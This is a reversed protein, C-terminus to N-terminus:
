FAEVAEAPTEAVTLKDVRITYGHPLSYGYLLQCIYERFVQVVTTNEPYVSAKTLVLTEEPTSADVDFMGLYPPRNDGRDYEADFRVSSPFLKVFRRSGRKDQVHDIQYRVIRGAPNRISFRFCEAEFASPDITEMWEPRVAIRHQYQPTKESLVDFDRDRGAQREAFETATILQDTTPKSM